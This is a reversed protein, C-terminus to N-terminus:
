KLMNQPLDKRHFGEQKYSTRYTVNKKELLDCCRTVDQKKPFKLNDIKTYVQMHTDM